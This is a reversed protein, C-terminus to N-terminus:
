IQTTNEPRKGRFSKWFIPPNMEGGAAFPNLLGDFVGPCLFAKPRLDMQEPVKMWNHLPEVEFQHDCKPAFLGWDHAESTRKNGALGEEQDLALNGVPLALRDDM